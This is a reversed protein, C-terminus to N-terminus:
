QIREITAEVSGPVNLAKIDGDIKGLIVLGDSYGFDRYYIALNGWPAYYAIDGVSPDSGPPADETSLRKPLNSIKETKAYDELTLTLPLLSVFDQTTKSDILTATVVQNGVKINIKMSNAQPTSLETPLKSAASSPMRNDAHCASYSLSMALAFVWILLRKQYNKGQTSFRRFLM